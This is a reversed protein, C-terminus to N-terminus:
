TILGLIWCFFCLDVWISHIWARAELKSINSKLPNTRIKPQLFQDVDNKGSVFIWGDLRRPARQFCKSIDWSHRLNPKHPLIHVCNYLTSYFTFPFMTYFVICFSTATKTRGEKKMSSRKSAFVSHCNKYMQQCGKKKVSQCPTKTTKLAKRIRKTPM